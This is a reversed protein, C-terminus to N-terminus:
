AYGQKLRVRRARRGDVAETAPRVLMWKTRALGTQAIDEPTTNKVAIGNALELGAHSFLHRVFASCYFAQERALRNERARAEPNRLAWLTGFIERVSYRAGGAVLELARRFVQQEQQATLGVDLVALASYKEADFYKSARNEQVGLRIHKRQIALDSEIVWHHGDARRGQFLFVHSWTSWTQGDIQHRQGRNILRDILSTGGVLGIRGAHAHREFFEENTLDQVVITDPM